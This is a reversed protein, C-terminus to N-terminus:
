PVVWMWILAVEPRRTWAASDTRGAGSPEHMGNSGLRPAVDLSARLPTSARFPASRWVSHKAKVPLRRATPHRQAAAHSSTVNALLVRSRLPASPPVFRGNQGSSSESAM